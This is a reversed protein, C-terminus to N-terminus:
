LYHELEKARICPVGQRPDALEGVVEVKHQLQKEYAQREYAQMSQSSLVTKNKKINGAGCVSGPEYYSRIITQQFYM